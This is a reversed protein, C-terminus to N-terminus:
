GVDEPILRGLDQGQARAVRTKRRLGVRAETVIDSVKVAFSTASCLVTSLPRYIIM